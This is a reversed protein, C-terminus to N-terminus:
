LVWKKQSVRRIHTIVGGILEQVTLYFDTDDDDYGPRDENQQPTVQGKARITCGCCLRTSNASLSEILFNVINQSAYKYYLRMNLHQLKCIGVLSEPNYSVLM